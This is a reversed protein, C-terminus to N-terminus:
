SYDQESNRFNLCSNSSSLLKWVDVETDHLVRDALILKQM